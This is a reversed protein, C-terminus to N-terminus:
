RDYVPYVRDQDRKYCVEGAVIATEVYTRYDLPGGNLILLDADKGKEISGIRDQLGLM